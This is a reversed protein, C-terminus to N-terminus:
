SRSRGSTWVSQAWSPGALDSDLHVLAEACLYQAGDSAIIDGDEYYGEGAPGGESEAVAAVPYGVPLSGGLKGADAWGAVKIAVEFPGIHGPAAPTGTCAEVAPDNVPPQVAAAVSDAVVHGSTVTADGSAQSSPPGSFANTQAGSTGTSAASGSVTLALVAVVERAGRRWGLGSVMTSRM